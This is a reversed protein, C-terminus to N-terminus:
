PGRMTKRLLEYQTGLFHVQRNTELIEALVNAPLLVSQQFASSAAASTGPIDAHPSTPPTSPKDTPSHKTSTKPSPKPSSPPMPKPSPKPSSSLSKKPSHQPSHKPSPSPTKKTWPKPSPKPPTNTPSASPKPSEGDSFLRAFIDETNGGIHAIDDPTVGPSISHLPSSSRQEPSSVLEDEDALKFQPSPM